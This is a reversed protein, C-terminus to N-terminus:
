FTDGDTRRERGSDLYGTERFLKSAGGGPTNGLEGIEAAMRALEGMPDAHAAPEGFHEWNGGLEEWLQNM